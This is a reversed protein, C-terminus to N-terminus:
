PQIEALDYISNHPNFIRKGRWRFAEMLEHRVVLEILLWCTKVVGSEWTGEAVFEPRGRGTGIENTETDPRDFAVTVFWGGDIKRTEFRWNFDLSTNVMSVDQLVAKLELDTFVQKDKAM